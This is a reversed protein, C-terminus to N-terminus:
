PAWLQRPWMESAVFSEIATEKAPNDARIGVLFDIGAVEEIEDITTLHDNLFRNSNVAGTPSSDEHSLLFTM